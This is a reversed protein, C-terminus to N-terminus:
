QAANWRPVGNPSPMHVYGVYLTAVRRPAFLRLIVPPVQDYQRLTPFRRGIHLAEVGIKRRRVASNMAAVM